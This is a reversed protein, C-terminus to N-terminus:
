AAQGAKKDDQDDGYYYGQRYYRYYQYYYQGGRKDELDVSNLVVGMVNSGVSRLQRVSDVAAPMLTENAKAIFVVGDVQRRM